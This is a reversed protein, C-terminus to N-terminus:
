RRRGKKRPSRHRKPNKSVLDSEVHGALQPHIDLPQLLEIAEAIDIAISLNSRAAQTGDENNLILSGSVVGFACGNNTFLPGGSLGGHAFFDVEYMWIVRTDEFRPSMYHMSLLGGSARTFIRMSEQAAIGLPHGFACCSRGHPVPDGANLPLAITRESEDDIKLVALDRDKDREIVTARLRRELNIEPQLVEFYDPEETNDKDMYTVHWCTLLHGFVDVAFATGRPSVKSGTPEKKIALVAWTAPHVKDRICDSFM